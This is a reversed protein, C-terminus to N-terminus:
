KNLFLLKCAYKKPIDIEFEEKFKLIDSNKYEDETINIKSENIFYEKIVESNMGIENFYRLDVGYTKDTKENYFYIFDDTILSSSIEKDETIKFIDSIIKINNIIPDICKYTQSNIFDTISKFIFEEVDNIFISKREKPSFTWYLNNDIKKNLISVSGEFLKSTNDWGIILTPLNIKEPLTDIINTSILKFLNLSNKYEDGIIINSLKINM